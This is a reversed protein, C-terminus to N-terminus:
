STMLRPRRWIGAVLGALRHGSRSVWTRKWCAGCRGPRRRALSRCPTSPARSSSASCSTASAAPSMAAPTPGSGTRPIPTTSRRGWRRASPCTPTCRSRPSPSRRSAPSCWGGSAGCSGRTRRAARLARHGAGAAPDPRPQRRVASARRCGRGALPRRPPRGGSGSPGALLLVLLLASLFLHFRTRTPACPTAGRSPRSRWCSAASSARHGGPPHGPRRRGRGPRPARCSCPRCCTPASRRTASRSSCWRPWGCCCRTAPIARPTPSAWCPGLAQFEGTDWFGLGPM